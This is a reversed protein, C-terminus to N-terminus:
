SSTRREFFFDEPAFNRLIKQFKRKLLQELLQAILAPDPRLEPNAIPGALLLPIPGFQKEGVAESKGLMPTLIKETLDPSLYVDLRYNLIGDLSADGHAHVSLDRSILALNETKVRGDKLTFASHVDDFPTTGSIYQGIGALEAIKGVSGLLDFTHFEGNTISFTGEATLQDDWDTSGLGTGAFQAKLFLNGDVTKQDGGRRETQTALFRALSLRNIETDAWFSSDKPGLNFGAELLGTGGYADLTLKKVLWKKNEYQIESVFKEIVEGKPFLDGIVKETEILTGKAEESIWDAALERLASALPYPQFHPSSIKLVALPSQALNNIALEALVESDAIKFRAQKLTLSLPGFDLLLFLDHIESGAPGTVSGNALTWNLMMEAEHLRRLDGMFNVLLKTEGSIKYKQFPPLMEEWGSLNFKNTIINIQGSGTTLNLETFTGKANAEKLRASFDGSVIKAQKLLLDFDLNLPVDKPKVFYRGYTFLAPTLDWNGHLALHDLTGALSLELDSHGSFGINFPIAERLPIWYHPINELAIGTAAIRMERIEGTGLDGNGRIEIKGLPSNLVAENVAFEEKQSDWGLDFDLDAQIEPSSLLDEFDMHGTVAVQGEGAKKLFGVRGSLDGSAINVFDMETQQDGLGDMRLGRMKISGELALLNWDWKELQDVRLTMKGSLAKHTGALDGEASVRIPAKSKIAGTKLRIGTMKIERSSVTAIAEGGRVDLGAIKVKGFLLPLIELHVRAKEGTLRLNGRNELLVKVEELEITPGPFTSLRFREFSLDGSTAEETWQIVKKQIAEAKVAFPLVAFLLALFAILLLAAILLVRKM